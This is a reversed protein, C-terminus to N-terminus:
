KVEYLATSGFQQIPTLGLTRICAMGPLDDATSATAAEKSSVEPEIVIYRVHYNSILDACGAGDNYWAQVEQLKQGADLTEYIHGYVVRLPAYAPIWLSTPRPQALVVSDEPAHTDLWRIASYSDKPMLIGQEIGEAPNMVGFLPIILSFVNSPLVFVILLLIVANRLPKRVRDFWYDELARVAFFVIPIILGISLRRQLNFPAYLLLANVVLWTLMLRDGDREFHRAARWIGPLAVILLLGFGIIYRDPTPSPTINQENWVRMAPNYNVVAFYYVVFPLGPLIYLIAWSIQAMPLRRDVVATLAIYVVLVAALPAWGFPSIVCLGIVLLVLAAGGNSVRPADSFGPRFVRLFTAALLAIIAITLPFHPNVLTSYFPIAEPVTLDIPFPQYQNFLLLYLWGLGAGVSVLAFFLRRPRLKQWIVSGLHYISIYMIFSALLRAIHFMLLAPLSLLRALHGLALYFMQIAAGMHPEPTYTLQFLWNGQIGQEMKALYSAGDIHNHLMGMFQWNDNPADSAFAWAYPILTIAVLLGSFLIVWRWEAASVEDARVQQM